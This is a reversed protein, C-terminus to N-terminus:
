TLKARLPTAIIGLSGCQAAVIIRLHLEEDEFPASTNAETDVWLELSFKLHTRMNTHVSLNAKKKHLCEKQVATIVKM